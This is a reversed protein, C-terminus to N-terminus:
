NNRLWEIWDNAIKDWNYIEYNIEGNAELPFYNHELGIYDKFTFNTKGLRIVELRFYDASNILGYDKTGYTVLVPIKLKLLYKMPPPYSFEFTGKNTDGFGEISKPSSIIGKWNEFVLRAQKSSDTETVRSRAVNTMMRGLPNGASYILKTVKRNSYAMKAAIASGESHGALVLNKKSVFTQTRLFDIVENNRNVYYSLLNREVYKRSFMKTRESYTMDKNLLKEDIILPIYPKGVIVIHYTTLINDLKEFPFVNYIASAGDRYHRIMLPIPLSGQCFFFLPKVTQEEGTKSKILIDVTDGNHVTQLHRFGYM